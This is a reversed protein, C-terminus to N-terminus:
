SPILRRRWGRLKAATQKVIRSGRRDSVQRREIAAMRRQNWLGLVGGIVFAVAMGVGYARSRPPLAPQEMVLAPMPRPQLAVPPVVAVQAPKKEEARRSGYAHAYVWTFEAGFLFIQASYYIWVMIIVISGFAGFSSAISSKGLYLGILFKGITFLLATVAAGVWVDRWDIHVRPMVKYIMAFVATLLGFSVVIDLIDALIQWGGFIGGWWKGLTALVASFVLSVMILFAMAFVMGISLLNSRLFSWIGGQKEPEPARWIFDLASQLQRLVGSAGLLLVVFSIATAIVGTSPRSAHALMEQIANAANEGMLDSVQAFIAGRVADAGFFLGAVSIVIMLLPAISFMSYYSLAAGMAPARDNSWSAATEKLLDFGKKAPAPLKM